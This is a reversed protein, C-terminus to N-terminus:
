QRSNGDGDAPAGKGNLMEVFRANVERPTPKYPGVHGPPPEFLKMAIPHKSPKPHGGKEYWPKEKRKFISFM